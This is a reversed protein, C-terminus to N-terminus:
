ISNSSNARARCRLCRWHRLDRHDRQMKRGPLLHYRFRKSNWILFVLFVM